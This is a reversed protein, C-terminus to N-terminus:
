FGTLGAAPGNYISCRLNFLAPLNSERSLSKLSFFTQSPAHPNPRVSRIWPALGLYRFGLQNGTELRFYIVDLTLFFHKKM